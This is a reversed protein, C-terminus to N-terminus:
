LRRIITFFNPFSLNPIREIISEETKRETNMETQSSTAIKESAKFQTVEYHDKGNVNQILNVIEEESILNADFELACTEDSYNVEASVIGATELLKEQISNACGMECVMGEISMNATMLRAESTSGTGKTSCSELMSAAFIVALVYYLFSKM